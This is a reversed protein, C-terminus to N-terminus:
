GMRPRRGQVARDPHRQRRELHHIRGLPRRHQSVTSDFGTGVAPATAPALITQMGQVDDTQGATRTFHIGAVNALGIMKAVVGNGVIRCTLVIDLWFPLLVHATANLQINGTDFVAVGGFKVQFNM